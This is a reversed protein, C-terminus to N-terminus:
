KMKIDKSHYSRRLRRHSVRNCQGNYFADLPTSNFWMGSSQRITGKRFGQSLVNYRFRPLSPCYATQDSEPVIYLWNVSLTTLEQSLVRLRTLNQSRTRLRSPNRSLTSDIWLWNRPFCVYDLWIRHCCLCDLWNRPSCVCDLWIRLHFVCNKSESVIYM